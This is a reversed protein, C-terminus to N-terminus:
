RLHAGMKDSCIDKLYDSIRAADEMDGVATLASQADAMSLTAILHKILPVSSPNLSLRTIGMALYLVVCQPNSASEGCISVPIGMRRCVTAADRITAIVAPHLPNYLASVKENNRDVALIYQTLDNTGISVFDVHRLLHHMIRVAAPVEIMIGIAMNANFPRGAAALKSKEDKVIRNIACVEEVTSVMPFMLSTPGHASARLVARIQARFIDDRELSVRVARWGLYPNTEKPYDLHSFLKDGGVDLTRITVTKGAAAAIVKCYLDFQEEETPFDGRILFPFETRYLGIHDAGYKHVLELDSLLSVNAGLRCFRGDRTTAPLDRLRDLDRFSKEKEVRLRDYEGRIEPPPDRFILGSTGDVILRDNERISDLVDKVGIIMPIEFSKALIVAHSTKGGKALIIGKLHPQRLRILEAPSIDAAIVVTDTTFAAQPTKGIALLNALVQKGADVIDAGRQRLYPDEMQNFHGLYQLVVQKLAAAATYGADIREYIKRRFAADELIMLNAEIISADQSPLDDAARHLERIDHRAAAFAEELLVRQVRLDEAAEMKVQDFGISEVLYHARGQAFGGSVAIGKLVPKKEILRPTDEGAASPKPAPRDSRDKNLDALLGSYAVTAAVQSTIASFVPIDAESIASEEVTQVVLVGLNRQHYILPLGLFTRYIEEGSEKFYKYRPHSSPNRVFVPAMTELVLGSLGESIHMRVSGIAARNLGITATLVLYKQEADFIYVSCVDISFREAVLEVITDLTKRPDRSGTIVSCIDELLHIKQRPM